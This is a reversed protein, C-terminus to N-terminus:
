TYVNDNDPKRVGREYQSITQKNVGIKEALDNQTYEYKAPLDRLRQSLTPM